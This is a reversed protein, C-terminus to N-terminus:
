HFVDTRVSTLSEEDPDQFTVRAVYDGRRRPLPLWIDKGIQDTEHRPRLVAVRTNRLWPLPLPRKTDASLMSWFVIVNEGELGTLTIDFSVMM